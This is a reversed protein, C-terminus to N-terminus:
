SNVIGASFPGHHVSDEGHLFRHSLHVVGATSKVKTQEPSVNIQKIMDHPTGTKTKNQIKGVRRDQEGM